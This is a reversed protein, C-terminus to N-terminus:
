SARGEVGAKKFVSRFLPSSLFRDQGCFSVLEVRIKAAAYFVGNIIPM